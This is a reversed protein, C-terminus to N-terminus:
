SDRPSPSTYLLCATLEAVAPRCRASSASPMPGPSSTMTPVIVEDGPGIGLAELALHLGATASNVAVGTVGGGLFDAFEQEFRRSVAGTTIWGSRLCELVAAAEEEGLDPLAFPLHDPLPAPVPASVPAPVPASVPAATPRPAAQLPLRSSPM